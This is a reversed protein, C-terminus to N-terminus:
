LPARASLRVGDAETTAVLGLSLAVAKAFGDPDSASFLGTVELRAVAPDDIRIRRDSYRAFETAAQGL